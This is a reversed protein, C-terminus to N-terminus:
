KRISLSKLNHKYQWCCPIQMTSSSICKMSCQGMYLVSLCVYKRLIHLSLTKHICNNIRIIDSLLLFLIMDSALYRSAANSRLFCNLLTQYSLMAHQLYTSNVFPINTYLQMRYIISINSVQTDQIQREITPRLQVCVVYM